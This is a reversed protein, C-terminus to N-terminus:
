INRARELSCRCLFPGGSVLNKPEIPKWIAHRLKRLFAKIDEWAFTFSDDSDRRFFDVRHLDIPPVVITEDQSSARTGACYVCEGKSM